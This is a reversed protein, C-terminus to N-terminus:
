TDHEEERQGEGLEPRDHQNWALNAPKRSYAPLCWPTTTRVAAHVAGCRGCVVPSRKSRM